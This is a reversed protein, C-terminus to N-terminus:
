KTNRRRLKSALPALQQTLREYGQERTLLYTGIAITAFVVIYAVLLLIYSFVGILSADYLMIQRLANSIIVYPNFSSLQEFLLPMSELPIIVDSLFLLLSGISIGALTATEETHFIYGIIMGIFIFVCSGLILLLLSSFISSTVHASFFANTIALIVLIQVLLILLSTAFTAIIHSTDKVPTLFTRFHAASNKELLILTPAILLATFMVILVILVPFLYNLHTTQQAIPKITTVIPQSVAEPDRIAISNIREDVDNLIQQVHIISLVSKDLLSTIADLVRIGLERSTDAESLRERTIAIAANIDDIALSFREFSELTVTKTTAMDAKLKNIDDVTKQFTKQLEENGSGGALSYAADIYSTAKNLGDTGLTLATDVWQKVQTNSAALEDVPFGTTNFNLDIDGLEAILEQSNKLVLENETTLKTILERQDGIRQQTYDLASVLQSTLNYSANQTRSGIEQGLLDAVSYVLNLRSYDVYFQLENNGQQAVTFNPSFVLCTNITGSRVADICTDSTAYSTVRFQTSLQAILPEAGPSSSTYGIKVAYTNSNDFALGALLIILLPGLIIILSGIKARLLNRFNKKIIETIEILQNM